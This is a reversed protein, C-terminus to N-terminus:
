ISRTPPTPPSLSCESSTEVRVGMDGGGKGQAYYLGVGIDGGPGYEGGGVDGHDNETAAYHHHQHLFTLM